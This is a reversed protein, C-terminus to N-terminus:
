SVFRARCAEVHRLAQELVQSVSLKSSDIVMADEAAKMPAQLRSADREDRVRMAELVDNLLVNYSQKPRDDLLEQTRRRARAALSATLFIKCPADASVVTGMDRGDLVIGTAVSAIYSRQQERLVARLAGHPALRSALLAVKDEYLRRDTELSALYSRTLPLRTRVAQVIAALDIRADINADINADNKTSDIEAPDIDAPDIDAANLALHWEDAAHRAVSRYLKGSDLHEYGLKTALTRSLTGKGAAAPGDVTIVFPRTKKMNKMNMNM